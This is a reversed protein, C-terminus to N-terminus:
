QQVAPDAPPVAITIPEEQQLGHHNLLRHVAAAKRKSDFHFIAGGAEAAQERVAEPVTATFYVGGGLRRVQQRLADGGGCREIEAHSLIDYSHRTDTHDETVIRLPKYHYAEHRM